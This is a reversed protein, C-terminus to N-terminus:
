AAACVPLSLSLQLGRNEGASAVRIKGGHLEVLGRALFMGPEIAAASYTQPSQKGARFEFFTALREVTIGIGDHELSIYAFGNREGFRLVIRGGSATRRAADAFLIRLVQEMRGQDVEIVTQGSSEDVVSLRGALGEFAPVVSREVNRIIQSLSLPKRRLDIKGAGLHSVDLLDNLLGTLQDIQRKMLAYVRPREAEPFNPRELVTLGSALASLPNRLEHALVSLFEDNDQGVKKANPPEVTGDGDKMGEDKRSPAGQKM